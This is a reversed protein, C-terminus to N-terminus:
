SNKIKLTIEKCKKIDFFVIIFVIVFIFFIFAGYDQVFQVKPTQIFGLIKDGSFLELITVPLLCLAVIEWLRKIEKTPASSHLHTALYIYRILRNKPYTKNEM